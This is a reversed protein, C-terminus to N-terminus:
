GFKRFRRQRGLQAIREIKLLDDRSGRPSRAFRARRDNRRRLDRFMISQPSTGGAADSSGALEPPASSGGSRGPDLEQRHSAAAGANPSHTRSKM